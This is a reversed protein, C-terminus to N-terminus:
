RRVSLQADAHSGRAQAVSRSRTRGRSLGEEHVVIHAAPGLEVGDDRHDISFVEQALDIARVLRLLLEAEGVHHKEVLGVQDQGLVNRRDFRANARDIRVGHKV